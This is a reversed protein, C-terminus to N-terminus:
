AVSLPLYPQNRATSEIPWWRASVIFRHAFGDSDLELLGPTQQGAEKEHRVPAYTSQGSCTVKLWNAEKVISPIIRAQTRWAPLTDTVWWADNGHRHDPWSTTATAL